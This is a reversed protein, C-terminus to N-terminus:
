LSWRPPLAEGGRKGVFNADQHVLFDLIQKTLSERIHTYDRDTWLSNEEGPDQQMDFLQGETNNATNYLNLKFRQDRIMTAHVPPDFYPSNTNRGGLSSNRYVCYAADHTVLFEGECFPVLNIADPMIQQLESRSMGATGLITASLDHLQVIQPLKKEGSFRSPWRMLLPVRVCADYFFGGKTTQLRDGLMDGHDSAFIVLTNEALGKQELAKLVRGVELDILAISAHYGFRMNRLESESLKRSNGGEISLRKLIPLTDEFDSELVFPDPINAQNILDGIELPYDQYPNHPDFVSMMGFFPQNASAKNVYDITREAAWHTMHVERPIHLLEKGERCLRDYFEPDTEKLWKAYGNFPSDLHIAHDLCWEYVDFGDHPHRKEAETYRSCVHLKGFLATHYGLRQLHETFLIQDEPLNDYLQYVGHGPLHKGTMLSSRSPTCIPNNVYCHEFLAGDTALQDLNPTHAAEFGYCGLSDFRQQDTMILLINPQLM